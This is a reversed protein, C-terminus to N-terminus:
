YCAAEIEGQITTGAWPTPPTPTGTAPITHRSALFQIMKKGFEIGAFDAFHPKVIM